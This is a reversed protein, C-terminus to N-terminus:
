AGAAELAEIRAMAEQLAKTLTAIVTWPNPSQILDKQDKVGTAADMILTEQMEHAIFGWRPKSIDVDARILPESAGDPTFDRYNFSVPRLQKVRDWTSPLEEVNTKVRYDSTFAFTGFNTNDVWGQMASGNWDINFRNSRNAAGLGPQCYYGGTCRNNTSTVQGGANFPGTVNCNGANDMQLNGGSSVQLLNVSGNTANWYCYGTAAGTNSLLTFQSNGSGVAQAYFGNGNSQVTGSFIANGTSRTFKLPTSLGAGTDTFSGISFDSGANSGSEATADGLM